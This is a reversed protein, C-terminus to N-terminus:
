ILGRFTLSNDLGLDVAQGSVFNNFETPYIFIM